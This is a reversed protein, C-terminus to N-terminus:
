GAIANVQSLYREMQRETGDTSFTITGLANNTGFTLIIVPTHFADYTGATIDYIEYISNTSSREKSRYVLKMRDHLDVFESGSLRGTKDELFYPLGYKTAM